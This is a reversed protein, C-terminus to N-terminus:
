NIAVWSGATLGTSKYWKSNATDLVEEGIFNPVINPAATITRAGMQGFEVWTGPTGAAVCIFGMPQGAEATKRWFIDGKNWSGARPAADYRCWEIHRFGIREGGGQGDAFLRSYDGDIEDIQNNFQIFNKNDGATISSNVIAYEFGNFWNASIVVEDSGHSYVGRDTTGIGQFAGGSINVGQCATLLIASVKAAAGASEYYYGTVSVGRCYNFCLGHQTDTECCFDAMSIDYAYSFNTAHTVISGEKAKGVRIKEWHTNNDQNESHIAHTRFRIFQLHGYTSYYNNNTHLGKNFGSVSVDELRCWRFGQLDLGISGTNNKDDLYFGRIVINSITNVNGEGPNGNPYYCQIAIGTGEYSLLTGYLVTHNRNEEGLLSVAERLQITETLRYTGAPMFAAGGKAALANITNQIATTDDAVGDGKAGFWKVSAPGSYIRKIVKGDVTNLVTGTNDPYVISSSGADYQWIGQQGDDTTFFVDDSLTGSLGRIQSITLALM